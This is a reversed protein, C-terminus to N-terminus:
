ESVNIRQTTWGAESDELLIPAGVLMRLRSTGRPTTHVVLVTEVATGGFTMPGRSVVRYDGSPTTAGVALSQLTKDPDANAAALVKGNRCQYATPVAAGGTALTIVGSDRTSRRWEMSVPKGANMGETRASRYRFFDASCEGSDPAGAGPDAAATRAPVDDLLKGPVLVPGPGTRPMDAMPSVPRAPVPKDEVVITGTRLEPQGSGAGTQGPSKEPESPPGPTKAQPKVQPVTAASTEPSDSGDPALWAYLAWTSGALALTIAAVLRITRMDNSAIASAPKDHHQAVRAQAAAVVGNSTEGALPAGTMYLGHALADIFETASTWREDPNKALAKEIASRAEPALAALPELPLPSTVQKYMVAYPTDADFPLTGGLWRYAMVGLAYIDAPPGVSEGKAQEPAMYQPTGLAAGTQTLATGAELLRAIGFDALYLEGREGLLVNQPKLDRHIVGQAHAHDLGDAIMRFYRLGPDIPLPSADFREGLHGGLVLRLAMWPVDADIGFAYVPVINPHELRAILKAERAFRDSFGSQELLEHPLIKLAVHRDLGAEYAKYVSAMGGRGIKEVITFPGVQQGREIMRDM